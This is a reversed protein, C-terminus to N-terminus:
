PTGSENGEEAPWSVTSSPLWTGSPDTWSSGLALWRLGRKQRQRRYWEGAAAAALAVLWPGARGAVDSGILYEGLDELQALFRQVGRELTGLDFPLLGALLPDQPPSLFLPAETTLLRIEEGV